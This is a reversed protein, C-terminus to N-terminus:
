AAPHNAHFKSVLSGVLFTVASGILFYWTFAVATYQWVWLITVLGTFM